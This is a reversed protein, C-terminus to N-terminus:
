FRMAAAFCAFFEEDLLFAAILHRPKENLWGLALDIRDEDPLDSAQNRDATMVLLAMKPALRRLRDFLPPVVALSLRDPTSLRYVGTALAPDFPADEFLSGEVLAIAENLPQRIAEARPTLMLGNPGRVFLDDNLLIRLHRLSNSVAPQSRSLKKGAGGHM